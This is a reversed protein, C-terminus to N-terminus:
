ANDFVESTAQDAPDVLEGQVAETVQEPTVSEKPKLGALKKEWLKKFNALSSKDKINKLSKKATEAEKKLKDDGQKVAKDLIGDVQKRLDGDAGSATANSATPKGSKKGKDNGGAGQADNDEQSAIGIISEYSYRRGYTIVSGVAQISNMKGTQVFPLELPNHIYGGSSHFLYTDIVVVTSEGNKQTGVFQSVALENANLVPRTLNLLTALDVYSYEYTGKDTVIKATQNKPLDPFESQAKALAVILEPTWTVRRFPNAEAQKEIVDSPEM